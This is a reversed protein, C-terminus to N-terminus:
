LATKGLSPLPAVNAVDVALFLIPVFPLLREALNLHQDTIEAIRAVQNNVGAAATKGRRNGAITQSPTEDATVNVLLTHLNPNSAKV